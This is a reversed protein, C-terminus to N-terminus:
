QTFSYVVRQETKYETGYCGIRHKRTWGMWLNISDGTKYIGVSGLTSKQFPGNSGGECWSEVTVLPGTLNWAQDRETQRMGNLLAMDLKHYLM